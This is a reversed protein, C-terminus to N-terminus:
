RDKVVLAAAAGLLYPYEQETHLARSLETSQFGCCKPVLSDEHELGEGAAQKSGTTVPVFLKHYKEFLGFSGPSFCFVCFSPMM